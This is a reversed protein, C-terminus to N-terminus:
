FEPTESDSEEWFHWGDRGNKKARYLAGDAKDYLFDSYGETGLAIGCSLSIPPYDPTGKKLEEKVASLKKEILAKTKSEDKDCQTLIITFEDGGIRCVYDTTRFNESLVDAVRILVKDGTSHGFNDNFLKFFDIDLVIFACPTNTYVLAKKLKNYAARNILGTLEDHEAKHRLLIENAENKEYMQNYTEGLINFEKTRTNSLKEEEKINNIFRYLPHIVLVIVCIFFLVEFVFIASISTIMHIFVSKLKAFSQQHTDEQYEFIESIAQSKLASISHKQSIYEQSFLLLWAQSIKYQDSLAKDKPSLEVNLIEEPIKKSPDKDFHNGEVVLKMAYYETLKLEQSKQYAMELYKISSEKGDVNKIREISKERRKNENAEYFYNELHYFENSLVFLRCQETLYDSGEQLNLAARSIEAYKDSSSAYNKFQFALLASCVVLSLCLLGIFVLFFLNILRLPFATKKTDNM